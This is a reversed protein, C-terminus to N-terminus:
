AVNAFLLQALENQIEETRREDPAAVPVRYSKEHRACFVVLQETNEEDIETDELRMIRRRILLLTLVYRLDKKQPQEALELFLELMIDNPAWNVKNANRSPMRSKWWGLIGEPPGEWAEASFDHRVVESGEAVLMSYFLEDPRFEQGTKSCRRTCRQVHFDM